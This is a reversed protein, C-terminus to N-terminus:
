HPILLQLSVVCDERRALKALDLATRGFADRLGVDVGREVLLEVIGTHGEKAALHLPTQRFARSALSPSMHLINLLYLLCHISGSQSATHTLSEGSTPDTLHTNAKFQTVLTNLLDVHDIKVAESIATNGCNDQWDVINNNSNNSPNNNTNNNTNGNTNNFNINNDNNTNNNTNNTTSFNNFNTNINNNNTNNNSDYNTNNSNAKNHSSLLYKKFLNIAQTNGHLAAIHLVSRGIRSCVYLLDADAELLLLMVETSGQRIAIHLPNWGDKNVRDVGAGGEVLLRAVAGNGKACALMLPTWDARKLADVPAGRELLWEVCRISNFQSSEHLPTKGSSSDRVVLLREDKSCVEKLRNIDDARCAEFISKIM